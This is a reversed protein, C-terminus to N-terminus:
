YQYTKLVEGNDYYIIVWGKYTENVQRGTLDLIKIIDKKTRNDITIIPYEKFEGDFDYQILRYYNITNEVKMDLLDYDIVEQSYGSGMINGVITPNKFDGTTSKEVIFHSSNHESATQWKLLNFGDQKIGDFYTLEVPLSTPSFLMVDDIRFQATSSNQRFRLRLNTTIPINGSPSIMRWVATGTGTPRTYTLQTYNTGDSSVEIILENNSATTSKHHNLTLFVQDYTSTNIGSITFVRSPNNTFFVNGGGSSGSNTSPTTNRVDVNGDFTIPSTSQWGTYTSISTTTTPTGFNETLITSQCLSLQTVLLAFISLIKKM